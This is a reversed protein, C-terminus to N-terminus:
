IYKQNLQCFVEPSQGLTNRGLCVVPLGSLVFPRLGCGKTKPHSGGLKLVSATNKRMLDDILNKDFLNSDPHPGNLFAL